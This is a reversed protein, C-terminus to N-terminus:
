DKCVQFDPGKYTGAPYIQPAVLGLGVNTKKLLDSSETMVRLEGTDRVLDEEIGRWEAWRREKLQHHTAPTAIDRVSGGELSKVLGQLGVDVLSDLSSPDAPQSKRPPPVRILLCVSM